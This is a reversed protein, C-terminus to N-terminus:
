APRDLTASLSSSTLKIVVYGVEAIAVNDSQALSLGIILQATFDLKAIKCITAVFRAPRSCIVVNAVQVTVVEAHNTPRRRHDYYM